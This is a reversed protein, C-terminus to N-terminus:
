YPHTSYYKLIAAALADSEKKIGEDTLILQLDSPVDMFCYESIVALLGQEYAERLLYLRDKENDEESHQYKTPRITRGVARYQEEICHALEQGPGGNEYAIQVLVESGTARQNAGNHHISVLVDVPYEQVYKRIRAKREEEPIRETEAPDRLMLVQVGNAELIAKVQQAVVINFDREFYKAAADHSGGDTGGHGADLLVILRGDIYQRQIPPQTTPQNDAGPQEPQFMPGPNPQNTDPQTVPPRDAGTQDSPPQEPSPQTTSDPDGAPPNWMIISDTSTDYDVGFNLVGALDRIKYYTYGNITYSDLEVLKGDVYIPNTTPKAEVAGAPAAQLVTAALLGAAIARISKRM